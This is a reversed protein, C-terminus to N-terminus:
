KPFAHSLLSSFGGIEEGLRPATFCFILDYFILGWIPPVLFTGIQGTNVEPPIYVCKKQRNKKVLPAFILSRRPRKKIIDHSSVKVGNKLVWILDYFQRLNAPGFFDLKVQISKLNFKSAIKQSDQM